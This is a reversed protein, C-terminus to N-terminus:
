ELTDISFHIVEKLESIRKDSYDMIELNATDNSNLYSQYYLLATKKDRYYADYNRALHYLLIKDKSVHWAAKFAKISSLYNGQEEYTIGLYTYYNSINESIGREIAKNFHFAAKELEGLARYNMGLYYHAIESENGSKIVSQFTKLSRSYERNFYLAIGLMKNLSVSSDAGLSFAHAIDSIVGRYDKKAYDLRAAFVYLRAAASDLCIGNNLLAGAEDFLKLEMYIPLLAMIIELDDPNLELGRSYYAAARVFDKRKLSIEAYKKYYYANLSDNRILRAYAEQARAYDMNRYYLMGLRNLASVHAPDCDLIKMYSARAGALRGSKEQCYALEAILSLNDPHEGICEELRPIAEEFHYTRLLEEGDPCSVGPATDSQAGLNGAVFLILILHFAYLSSGNTRQEIHKFM